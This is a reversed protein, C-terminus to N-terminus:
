FYSLLLMLSEKGFGYAHLKRDVTWPKSHWFGQFSGDFSGKCFRQQWHDKGNKYYHCFLMNPVSGKETVVCIHPCSLILM